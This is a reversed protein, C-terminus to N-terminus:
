KVNVEVDATVKKTTEDVTLTSTTIQTNLPTLTYPYAGGDAGVVTGDTGLYGKEILEEKTYACTCYNSIYRPFLYSKGDNENFNYRSVSQTEGWGDVHWLCNVEVNSFVAGDIGYSYDDNSELICNIFKDVYTYQKGDQYSYVNSINCNRFTCPRSDSNGGYLYYIKCNNVNIDKSKLNNLCMENCIWSREITMGPMDEAFTLNRIVCSTIRLGPASKKVNVDLYFYIGEITCTSTVSVDVMVTTYPISGNTDASRGRILINKDITFGYGFSGSALDITDGEVAAAIADGVKSSDFFKVMGKSQLIVKGDNARAVSVVAMLLIIFLINKKM